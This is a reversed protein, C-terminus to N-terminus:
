STVVTLTETSNRVPIGDAHFKQIKSRMLAVDQRLTINDSRLLKIEAVVPAMAAALLLGTDNNSHVSASSKFNILEPGKEGVISLGLASGGAAYGPINLAKGLLKIDNALTVPSALGYSAALDAKEFLSSNEWWEVHSKDLTGAPVNYKQNLNAIVNTYDTTTSGSGAGGTGGTDVTTIIDAGNKDTTKGIVIGDLFDTLNIDISNLKNYVAGNNWLDNFGTFATTFTTNTLLNAITTNTFDIATNIKGLETIQGAPDGLDLLKVQDKSFDEVKKLTSLVESEIAQYEFFSTTSQEKYALVQGSLDVLDKAGASATETDTSMALVGAAKFAKYTNQFQIDPSLTSSQGIISLRADSVSEGIDEFAKSTNKVIDALTVLDAAADDVSVGWAGAGSVFQGPSMGLVSKVFSAQKSTSGLDVGYKSGMNMASWENDLGFISAKAGGITKLHGSYIELGSVQALTDVIIKVGDKLKQAENIYDANGAATAAAYIDNFFTTAQEAQSAIGQLKLQDSSFIFSKVSDAMSNITAAAGSGLDKVTEWFIADQSKKAKSLDGVSANKDELSKTLDDFGTILEKLAIALPDIDFGDVISDLDDLASTIFAVQSFADVASLNFNDMRDTIKEMFNDTKKAIDAFAVFGDWSTSGEPTIAKFFATNFVDAMASVQHTINEYIPETYLYPDAGTGKTGSNFPKASDYFGREGLQPLLKNKSSEATVYQSGVITKISKEMSGSGPLAGLLLGGLIESFVADSLNSFAKEFSVDDTVRFSSGLNEYDKLIDNINTSIAGDISTFVTDFYEFLTNRIAPENDFDAAFVRYDFLSSKFDDYLDEFAFKYEGIDRDNSMTGGYWDEKKIGSLGFQPKDAYMKSIHSAALAAFAALGLGGSGSLLGKLGGVSAMQSGGAGLASFGGDGAVLGYSPGVATGGFLGGFIKSNTLKDIIGSGIKGGISKSDGLGIMDAFKTGKWSLGAASGLEMAIPIIFKQALLEAAMEALTKKVIDLMSDWANDWEFLIDATYDQVTEAFDGYAATQKELSDQAAQKQKEQADNYGNVWDQYYTEPDQKTSDRDIKYWGHLDQTSQGVSRTQAAEYERIAAIAKQIEVEQYSVFETLKQVKKLGEDWNDWDGFYLFENNMRALADAAENAAPVTKKLAAVELLIAAQRDEIKKVLDQDLLTGKLPKLQLNLLEYENQLKRVEISQGATLEKLDGFVKIWAGVGTGIIAGRGGGFKSGIAAGAMLQWYEKMLKFGTSGTFASVEKGMARIHGPVDQVLFKDNEVVWDTIHGVMEIIQPSTQVVANMLRTKVAYELNTFQDIAAESQRLWKEDIVLGLDLFEQRMGDLAKSGGKVMNTMKIGATRSFAAASLATKDSQNEIKGLTNFFIELAKDTSGAAIMQNKLEENHKSLITNLAGTGLRLEGLRKSFAGLGQDLQAVAVGSRDAMFRYEQLSKTTIGITDATKAISDAAALNKKVFYGLGAAGAAAGLASNFSFVSSTLKKLGGGVQKFAHGTLDKATLVIELKTDAM